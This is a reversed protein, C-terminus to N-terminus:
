FGMAMLMMFIGGAALGVIVLLGIVLGFIGWAVGFVGWVLEWVFGLINGLGCLAAIVLGIVIVIPALVLAGIFLGFLEFM